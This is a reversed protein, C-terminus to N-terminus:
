VQKCLNSVDVIYRRGIKPGALVQVVVCDRQADDSPEEPPSCRRRKRSCDILDGKGEEASEEPDGKHEEASEEPDGKDEEASEEPDGKDEEASEDPDGKEEEASEDPDDKEEETSEDDCRVIDEEDDTSDDDEEDTPNDGKDDSSEEAPLPVPSAISSVVDDGIPQAQCVDAFNGAVMDSISNDWVTGRTCIICQIRHGNEDVGYYRDGQCKWCSSVLENVDTRSLCDNM